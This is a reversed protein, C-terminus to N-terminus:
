QCRELAQFLVVIDLQDVGELGDIDASPSGTDFADILVLLDFYEAVGNGDFDCINISSDTFVFALRDGNALTLFDSETISRSVITEEGNLTVSFSVDVEPVSSAEEITVAYAEDGDLGDLLIPGSGGFEPRTAFGGQLLPGGVGNVLLEPMEFRQASVNGFIVLDQGPLDAAMPSLISTDSSILVVGAVIPTDLTSGRAVLDAPLSSAPLEAATGFTEPGGVFGSVPLVATTTWPSAAGMRTPALPRNRVLRPAASKGHTLQLQGSDRM